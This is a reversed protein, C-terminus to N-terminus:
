PCTCTASCAANGPCEGVSSPPDCAEAGQTYGDGCEAPCVNVDGGVDALQNYVRTELGGFNTLCEPQDVCKGTVSSLKFFAKLVCEVTKSDGSLFLLGEPNCSADTKAKRENKLCNSACKTVANVFSALGSVLTKQCKAEAKTLGDPSGSDNCFITDTIDETLTVSRASVATGFAACSGNVQEFCEPCTDDDNGASTCKKALVAALKADAKQVCALTKGGFPAACDPASPTKKECGAVCNGRAKGYGALAKNIAAQCGIEGKSLAEPLAFVPARTVLVLSLVAFCAFLPRASM